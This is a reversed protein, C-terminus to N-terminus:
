SGVNGEKGSSGLGCYTNIVTPLILNSHYIILYDILTLSLQRM